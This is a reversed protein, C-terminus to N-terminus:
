VKKINRKFFIEKRENFLYKTLKKITTNYMKNNSLNNIEKPDEKINFLKEIYLKDKRIVSMMKYGTSTVTFYIDRRLIDANGSGCNESIVYKRGNKFISRGKFSKDLPIGLIDLFSATVEM